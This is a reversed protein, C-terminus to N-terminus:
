KVAFSMMSSFPLRELKLKDLGISELAALTEGPYDPHNLEDFCILGGKPVRTYLAKITDLTPKYLDLDLYLISIVLEPHSELFAPLTLSIDGKILEAKSIHSLCRNRDHIKIAKSLREFGGYNLGGNRLHEANSTLDKSTIRSIM